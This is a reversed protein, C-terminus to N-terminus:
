VEEDDVGPDSGQDRRQRPATTRVQLWGMTQHLGNEQPNFWEAATLHTSEGSIHYTTYKALALHIFTLGAM